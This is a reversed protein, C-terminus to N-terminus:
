CGAELFAEVEGFMSDLFFPAVQDFLLTLDM